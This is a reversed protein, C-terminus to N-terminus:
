PIRDDTCKEYNGFYESSPPQLSSGPRQHGGGMGRCEQAPGDGGSQEEDRQNSRKSRNKQGLETSGTKQSSYKQIPQKQTINIKLYM